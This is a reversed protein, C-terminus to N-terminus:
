AASRALRDFHDLFRDYSQVDFARSPDNILELRSAGLPTEDYDARRGAILRVRTDVHIWRSAEEEDVWDLPDEGLQLVHQLRLANAGPLTRVREALMRREEQLRALRGRLWAVGDPEVNVPGLDVLMVETGLSHTQTLLCSGLPRSGDAAQRLLCSGARLGGSLVEPHAELWRVVPEQRGLALLAALEARGRERDAAGSLRREARGVDPPSLARVLRALGAVYDSRFDAYLKDRLPPPLECDAILAPLVRLPAGDVELVMALSLEKRVWNSAVSAPSLVAVVADARTVATSIRDIISDGVQLLWKDCTAPLGAGRLDAILRDVFGADAHAYSVFLSSM